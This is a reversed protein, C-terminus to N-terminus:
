SFCQMLFLYGATCTEMNHEMKDMKKQQKALTEQIHNHGPEFRALRMVPEATEFNIYVQAMQEGHCGM